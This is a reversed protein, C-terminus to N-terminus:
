VYESRMRLCPLSRLQFCYSISICYGFGSPDSRRAQNNVTVQESGVLPFGERIGIGRERM